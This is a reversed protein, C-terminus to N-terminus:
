FLLLFLLGLFYLIAVLLYQQNITKFTLIGLQEMKTFRNNIPRNGREELQFDSTKTELSIDSQQQNTSNDSSNKPLSSVIATEILGLKELLEETAESIPFEQNLEGQVLYRDDTDLDGECRFLTIKPLENSKTEEVYQVDSAHIIQSLLIKYKYITSFDTAYIISGIPANPLRGLVGGTEVLNHSLVVYNNIGLRQESRYTGVGIMLNENSMGALIPTYINASPIYIAGIGLQEIIRGYNIQAEAFEDPTVPHIAQEDFSSQQNKEFTNKESTIKSLTPLAINETNESVSFLTRQGILYLLLVSFGLLLWISLLLRSLNKKM